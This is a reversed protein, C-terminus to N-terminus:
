HGESAAADMGRLATQARPIPRASPPEQIVRRWATGMKGGNCKPFILRCRGPWGARSGEGARWVGLGRAEAGAVTGHGGGGSMRRGRWEASASRTDASPPREHESRGAGSATRSRGGGSLEPHRAAGRRQPPRRGPGCPRASAHGRSAGAPADSGRAGTVDDVGSGGRVDHGREVLPANRSAVVVTGAQSPPVEEQGTGDIAPRRSAGGNRCEM